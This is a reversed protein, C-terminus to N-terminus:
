ACEACLFRALERALADGHCLKGRCAAWSPSCVLAFAAIDPNSDVLSQGAAGGAAGMAMPTLALSDM